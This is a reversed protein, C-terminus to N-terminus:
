EDRHFIVALKNALTSPLVVKRYKKSSIERIESCMERLDSKGHICTNDRKGYAEVQKKWTNKVYVNAVRTLFQTLM